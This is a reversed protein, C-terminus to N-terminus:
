PRINNMRGVVKKCPRWSCEPKAEKLKSKLSEHKSKLKEIREKTASEKDLMTKM